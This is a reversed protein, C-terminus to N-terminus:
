WLKFFTLTLARHKSPALTRYPVTMTSTLTLSRRRFDVEDPHENLYTAIAETGGQDLLDQASVM